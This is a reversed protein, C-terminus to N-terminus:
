NADSCSIADNFDTNQKPWCSLVTGKGHAQGRHIQLEIGLKEGLAAPRHLADEERDGADVAVSSHENRNDRLVQM